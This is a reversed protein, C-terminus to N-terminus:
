IFDILEKIKKLAEKQGLIYAQRYAWSPNEFDTAAKDLSRDEEELIVLLRSVITTSARITAELKKKDEEDKLHKTWSLSIKKAM